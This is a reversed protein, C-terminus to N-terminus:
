QTRVGDRGLDGDALSRLEAILDSAILGREGGAAARDGAAAHLCVGARAASEPPLGQARLAAIIGTLVDGMGASAMGPNGQSCVVPIAAPPAQILTGAGKLVIVGGFRRQLSQAAAIRDNQVEASSVGLLRAAEGPHPTLIWDSRSFPTEALLNLADADVVLPHPLGCVREWLARGWADRGLGPGIAIVDARELLPGLGEADAVAHVMLEPRALNLWDAHRPHTAISVLGAGARLAAEGALRVAGSMGPAGGVILVHGCEGKHALRSRRPLASSERRWDSRVAAAVEDAYVRAPVGLANFRVEGRYEPGKGVFLGLKLAIFSLTVSARVAAGMVEGTDAHLGSPLDLALIPARQANLAAIAEAFPGSVPRDLGIGFLADVFLDVGKPLGSWGEIVGGAAGFADRGAAAPGRLREPDGVQILRVELGDAQALRAVVYGDGGNNGIGALVCIRLAGPWRARLLRYAAGGAREMLETEPIGFRESALRDFRKIQDARYLAYPLREGEPLTRQLSESM